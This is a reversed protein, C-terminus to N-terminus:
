QSSITYIFSSNLHTYNQAYYAYGDRYLAYPRKGAEDPALQKAPYDTRIRAIQQFSENMKNPKGDKNLSLNAPEQIPKPIHNFKLEAFQGAINM